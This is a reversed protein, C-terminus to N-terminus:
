KQYVDPLISPRCRCTWPPRGCQKCLVITDPNPMKRPRDKRLLYGADDMADEMRREKEQKTPTVFNDDGSYTYGRAAQGPEMPTNCYATVTDIITQLQSVANQVDNKAVYRMLSEPGPPAILSYGARYYNESTLFKNLIREGEALNDEAKQLRDMSASYAKKADELRNKAAQENQCAQNYAAQAVEIDM